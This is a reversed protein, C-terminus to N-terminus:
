GSCGWHAVSVLVPVTLSSSRDNVDGVVPLSAADLAVGAVIVVISSSGVAECMPTAPAAGSRMREDVAGDVCGGVRDALSTRM